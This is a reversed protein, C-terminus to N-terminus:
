TAREVATWMYRNDGNGDKGAWLCVYAQYYRGPIGQYTVYSSHFVTDEALMSPYMSHRFTQKWTWTSNDASEYLMITLAGIEDMTNTGVVNFWLELRGGGMACVYSNYSTFYYSAQPQVTEPTAASVSHPILLPLVLLLAVLKVFISNKRSLTM